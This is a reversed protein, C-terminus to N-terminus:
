NTTESMEKTLSGKGFGAFSKYIFGAIKQMRDYDEETEGLTKGTAFHQRSGNVLMEVEIYVGENSGWQAYAYFCADRPIETKEDFRHSLLFYEDPMMNNEKMSAELEKFIEYAKRSRVFRLYGPKEPHNEWIETEIVKNQKM